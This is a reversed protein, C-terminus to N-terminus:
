LKGVLAELGGVIQFPIEGNGEKVYGKLGIYPQDMDLLNTNSFVEKVPADIAFRISEGPKLNVPRRDTKGEIGFPNGKHGNAQKIPYTLHFNLHTIEFLANNEVEIVYSRSEETIQVEVLKFRINKDDFHITETSCGSIAIILFLLCISLYRNM